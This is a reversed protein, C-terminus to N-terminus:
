YGAAEEIYGAQERLDSIERQWFQDKNWDPFNKAFIFDDKQRSIWLLFHIMRMARLAEIARLGARDFRRFREYGSIFLEIERGANAVRDPLLLWLDQIPPGMAMDDFDIVMLGEELRDLINGRHCDGHVRIQELNEFLPASLGIIHDCTNKFSARFKEPIVSTCLEDTHSQCSHTPHMIIRSLAKQKAGALHMRAVLSGLRSWHEDSTIELQRGAKKPFLALLHGEHEALTDGNIFKVPSVVPVESAALDAVFLHEESVAKRSWRGPRYFKVVYKAGDTGRLEYVRNIYSPLPITLGTLKIGAATEVATLIVDPTLNEFSM